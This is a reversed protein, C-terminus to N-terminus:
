KVDRYKFFFKEKRKLDATNQKKINEGAEETEFFRFSPSQNVRIM